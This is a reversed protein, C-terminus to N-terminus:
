KPWVLLAPVAAADKPLAETGSGEVKNSTKTATAKPNIL